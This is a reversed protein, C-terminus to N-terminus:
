DMLWLFASSQRLLFCLVVGLVYLGGWKLFSKKSLKKRKFVVVGLFVFPSLFVSYLAILLIFDFVNLTSESFSSYPDPDIGYSPIHGVRISCYVLLLVVVSLVLTPIFSVIKLLRSDSYM